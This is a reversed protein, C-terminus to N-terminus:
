KSNASDAQDELEAYSIESCKIIERGKVRVTIEEMLRTFSIM